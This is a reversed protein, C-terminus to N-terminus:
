RENRLIVDLVYAKIANKRDDTLTYYQKAIPNNRIAAIGFYDEFCTRCWVAEELTHWDKTYYRVSHYYFDVKYLGTSRVRVVGRIGIQNDIRTARQNDINEQRTVFRLNSRRNNLSNGDIHDIELGVKSGGLVLEHLYVATGKKNSGSAVYYKQRKQVIRWTRSKVLHYDCLDVYFSVIKGNYQVNCVAVDDIVAWSNTQPTVGSHNGINSCFVCRKPPQEALNKMMSPLVSGCNLCKTLKYKDPRSPVKLGIDIWDKDTCTDGIIVRNGYRMGVMSNM